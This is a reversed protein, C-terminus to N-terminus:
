KENRMLRQLKRAIGKGGKERGRTAIFITDDGAVTGVLGEWDVHDLLSGVSHATGPLTKVVILNEGVMTVERLFVTVSSALEDIMQSEGMPDEPETYRGSRKVLRLERIDRSVSVQTCSIGRDKLHSVLESQTRISENRIISLLVRQRERKSVHVQKNSYNNM